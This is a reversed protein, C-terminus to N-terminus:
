YLLNSMVKTPCPHARSPYPESTLLSQTPVLPARLLTRLETAVPLARYQRGPDMLLYLQRGLLPFNNMRYIPLCILEEM